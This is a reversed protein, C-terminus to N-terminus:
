VEVPDNGVMIFGFIDVEVFWFQLKLCSNPPKVVPLTSTRYTHTGKTLLVLATIFTANAEM